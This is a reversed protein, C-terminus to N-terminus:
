GNFLFLSSHPLAIAHGGDCGFAGQKKELLKCRYEKSGSMGALKAKMTM